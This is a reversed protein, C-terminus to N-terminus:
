GKISALTTRANEAGRFAPDLKLAELLSRRAEHLNGNKVFALGLHYHIIPNQPSQRSAERLSTVALSSMGKQYYVWGLTDSVEAREPLAAKATQALQLAQDLNQGTEAYVAALNNAAVPARPDIELAREYQKRAEDRKNQLELIMGIMTMASVSKPGKAVVEYNRIADDLRGQRMYISALRLYADLHGPELGLLKKFTAESRDNDGMQMLTTGALFLLARDDPSSALREDIRKRVADYKKEVLDATVLGNFAEISKPQAAMAKAFYKRARTLDNKGAYVRGLETNIEASSPNARADMLFEREARNLNGMQFFAKGLLFHAYGWDPRAKLVPGLANAAAKGDGRSLYLNALEVQAPGNEPAIELVKLIAKIADDVAGTAELAAGRIYHATVAKPNAAVVANAIKLAEDFKRDSILFRAKTVLLLENRPYRQLADELAKYAAPRSNQAPFDVIALRVTAPVYGDKEKTLPELISIADKTRGLSLYFDALMLRPGVENALQAYAKFYQEADNPKRATVYFAALARNVSVSKPDLELATKMEREANAQQGSAWYLNGLSEHPSPSKPDIEIARKLASEAAGFNGKQFQLFSLNTYVFTSQPGKDIAEEIESIAGDLDKLGALANALLVLASPNKSDVGLAAVARQRAEPYQGARLLLRAAHLQANVNNPMLDAARVYEAIASPLDGTAEYAGGLKLRAEGFSADQAVANRYQVIADAYNKEGFSREASEFYRRKLKQPDRTCAAASFVLAALLVAVSKRAM